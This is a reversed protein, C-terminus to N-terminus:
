SPQILTYTQALITAASFAARMAADDPMPSLYRGECTVRVTDKTFPWPSVSFKNDGLPTVTITVDDGVTRPVNPFTQVTLLSPHKLHFYIALTDFFQLLKYNHMLQVDGSHHSSDPRESCASKLYIQRQWEHQLMAHAVDVREPPINDILVFNSMGYRGNYLGTIHMSSILGSYPHYDENFNPSGAATKLLLDLPTQTLHYPLGTKPDFPPQNDMFRWGEDHHAIVYMMPDNPTLPAFGNGGFARAFSASFRAHDIQKIVFNPEGQPAAQIFM